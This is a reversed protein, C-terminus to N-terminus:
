TFPHPTPDAHILQEDGSSVSSVLHACRPDHKTLLLYQLPVPLTVIIVCVMFAHLTTTKCEAAQQIITGANCLFTGDGDKPDLLLSLSGTCAMSAHPTSAFSLANKFKAGSQPVHDGKLATQNADLSLGEGGTNV